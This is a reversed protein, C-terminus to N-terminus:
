RSLEMGARRLGLIYQKHAFFAGVAALRQDLSTLLKSTEIEHTGLGGIMELEALVHLRMMSEHCAQITVTNNPSMTKVEEYRLRDLCGLFKLSTGRSLALLASAIGINFDNVKFENAQDVIQALRSWRSTM